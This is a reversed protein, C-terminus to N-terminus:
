SVGRWKSGSRAGWRSAQGPQEISLPAATTSALRNFAGSSADVQDDASGQPFLTLEDLYARNWPGRVLRIFGAQAQSAFPEARVEKSGSPRDAQVPFGALHRITAQVSELGGSGGEQEVFIRVHHKGFLEADHEAVIKMVADREGPSWQGRVVDEVYFIGRNDRAMRVGCTYSGRGASAAKDWYRVRQAQAPGEAVVEFWDYHFLNGEMPAPSGMYEAAWSFPGVDHQLELFAKASFRSPVLSDGPQRGLPDVLGMELGLRYNHQDREAQTEGLAPFRLVTWREGRQELLRGALDDRAWRTMVLIIRGNEWIRTRFTSRYWEWIRALVATSRAQQWNEIPDDVLGLYAGHGTIPGGVGAALMTGRHGELGWYNRARSDRDLRVDPFLDRYEQTPVLNRSRRALMHALSAGYSTLIVPDEPRHALWFAPLHVSALQSKGVQPPSFLMLRETSGFVVDELYAAVVAHFPDPKYQPFTHMVFGLLYYRAHWLRFERDERTQALVALAWLLDAPTEQELIQMLADQEGSTLSPWLKALLTSTRTDWNPNHM